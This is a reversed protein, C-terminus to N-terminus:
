ITRPEWGRGIPLTDYRPDVVLLGRNWSIPISEYPGTLTVLDRFLPGAARPQLRLLAKDPFCWEDSTRPAPGAGLHRYSMQLM